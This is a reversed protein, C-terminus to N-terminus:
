HRKDPREAPERGKLADVIECTATGTALAVVGCIVAVAAGILIAGHCAVRRWQRARSAPPTRAELHVALGAALMQAHSRAVPLIGDATIDFTVLAVHDSPDGPRVVEPALHTLEVVVAAPVVGPVTLRGCCASARAAAM